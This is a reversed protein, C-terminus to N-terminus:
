EGIDFLNNLKELSQNMLDNIEINYRFTESIMLLTRVFLDKYINTFNINDLYEWLSKMHISTFDIYRELTNKENIFISLHLKYLKEFYQKPTEGNINQPSDISTKLTKILFNLVSIDKNKFAYYIPTMKQNDSVYLSAGAKLLVELTRVDIKLCEPIEQKVSIVDEIDRLIM